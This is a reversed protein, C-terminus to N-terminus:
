RLFSIDNEEVESSEDTPSVAICFMDNKREGDLGGLLFIINEFNVIKHFSRPSPM